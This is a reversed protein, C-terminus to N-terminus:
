PIKKISDDVTVTPVEPAKGRTVAEAAAQEAENAYTPKGADEIADRVKRMPNISKDIFDFRKKVADIIGGM